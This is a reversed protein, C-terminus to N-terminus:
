SLYDMLREIFENLKLLDQSEVYGSSERLIEWCGRIILGPQTGRRQTVVTEM